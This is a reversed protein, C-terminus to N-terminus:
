LKLSEIDADQILPDNTIQLSNFGQIMFQSVM